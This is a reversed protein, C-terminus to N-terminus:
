LLYCQLLVRYIIIDKSINTLQDWISRLTELKLDTPYGILQNWTLDKKKLRDKLIEKEIKILNVRISPTLPKENADLLQKTQNEGLFQFYREIM